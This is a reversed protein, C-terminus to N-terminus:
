IVQKLQRQENWTGYQVQCDPGSFHVLKKGDPDEPKNADPALYM